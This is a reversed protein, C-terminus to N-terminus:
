ELTPRILDDPDVNQTGQTVHVVPRRRGLMEDWWPPDDTRPATSAGALEGVYHLQPPPDPREFDLRACGTAAILLPSRSAQEYPTGGPQLGAAGRARTYARQLPRVLVPRVINRLAADRLRGAPGRAPQFGLGGPPLHRSPLLLPVIGVTAWPAGTSEAVFIPGVSSEEAVLLDWPERAWESRLDVSQGVASDIFLDQINIVLQRIGKRGKLRPFTPELDHEDFDPAARWPVFRASAKEVRDRFASGTYFRVDHGRAIAEAAVVLMPSVHGTFPMAMIMIKAM